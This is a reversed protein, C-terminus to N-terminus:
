AQRLLQQFCREAKSLSGSTWGKVDAHAGFPEPSVSVVNLSLAMSGTKPLPQHVQPVSPPFSPEGRRGQYQNSYKGLVAVACRLVASPKFVGYSVLSSILEFAQPQINDPVAQQEPLELKTFVLM